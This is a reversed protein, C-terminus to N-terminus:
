QSGLLLRALAGTADLAAATALVAQCRARRPPGSCGETLGAM